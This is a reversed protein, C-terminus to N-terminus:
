VEEGEGEGEWRGYLTAVQFSDDYALAQLVVDATAIAIM